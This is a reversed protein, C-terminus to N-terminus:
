LRFIPEFDAIEGPAPLGMIEPLLPRRGGVMRECPIFILVFNEETKDCDVGKDSPHISLSVGKEHRTWAPMVQLVSFLM